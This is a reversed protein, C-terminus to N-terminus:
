GRKTRRCLALANTRMSIAGAPRAGLAARGPQTRSAIMIGLDPRTLGVATRRKDSIKPQGTWNADSLRDDHTNASSRLILRKCSITLTNNRCASGAATAVFSWINLPLSTQNAIHRLVGAPSAVTPNRRGSRRKFFLGELNVSHPTTPQAKLAFSRNRLPKLRAQYSLHPVLVGFGFCVLRKEPCPYLPIFLDVLSWGLLSAIMANTAQRKAAVATLGTSQM